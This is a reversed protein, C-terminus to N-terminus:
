KALSSLGGFGGSLASIASGMQDKYGSWGSADIGNGQSILDKLSGLQKGLSSITAALEKSTKGGFISSLQELSGIKTGAESALGKAQKLFADKSSFDMGKMTGWASTLTSSYGSAEMVQNMANNYEPAPVFDDEADTIEDLFSEKGKDGDSDTKAESSTAGQPTSPAESTKAASTQNSSCGLLGLCAILLASISLTTKM